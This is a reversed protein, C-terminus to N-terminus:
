GRVPALRQTAKTTQRKLNAKVGARNECRAVLKASPQVEIFGLDIGYFWGRYRLGSIHELGVTQGRLAESVFSGVGGIHIFGRADVRRVLRDRPYRPPQPFIKRRRPIYVEAPTRGQLADHVRVNNFQQRWKSCVRQQAARTAAPESQLETAMDRHMREHAGNDEPHALRSRVTAIGLSTWWASLVTLGAPARPCIFPSGNDCQLAKPVGYRKFLGELVARVATGQTAIIDIALIYRSFADRVTLPECREGNAACWWGKFDITWVVNSATAAVCPAREVLSAPKRKRRKRVEGLRALIRAVTRESPLDGSLKAALPRMLKRAGWFPYRRRVEIIALVIEEGSTLPTSSPRRSKEELGDYGSARFRRLWKHATERTIGFERALASVNAGPQSAREVFDIKLSM